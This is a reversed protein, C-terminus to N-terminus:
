LTKLKVRDAQYGPTYGLALQKKQMLRDKELYDKGRLPPNDELAQRWARDATAYDRVFAVLDDKSMIGERLLGGLAPYKKTLLNVLGRDKNKRERFRPETKLYGLVDTKLTM